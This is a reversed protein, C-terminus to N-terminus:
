TFLGVIIKLNSLRFDEEYGEEVVAQVLARRAQQVFGFCGVYRACFAPGLRNDVCRPLRTM